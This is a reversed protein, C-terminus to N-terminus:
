FNSHIWIHLFQLLTHNLNLNFCFVNKQCSVLNIFDISSFNTLLVVLLSDSKNNKSIENNMHICITSFSLSRFPFLSASVARRLFARVVFLLTGDEKSDTIFFWSDWERTFSIHVVQPLLSELSFVQIINGPESIKTHVGNWATWVITSCPIIWESWRIEIKIVWAYLVGNMIYLIYEIVKM